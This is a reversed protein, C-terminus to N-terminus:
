AEPRLSTQGECRSVNERRRKQSPKRFASPGNTTHIRNIPPYSFLQTPLSLGHTQQPQPFVSFDDNALARQHTFQFAPRSTGNTAQYLRPPEPWPPRSFPAIPAGVNTSLLVLWVTLLLAAAIELHDATDPVSRHRHRPLWGLLEMM